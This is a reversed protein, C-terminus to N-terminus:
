KASKTDAFNLVISNDHPTIRFVTGDVPKSFFGKAAKMKYKMGEFECDVQSPNVKKFPLKASDATTLDLFWNNLKSGEVKMMMQKEDMDIVLTGLTTKLPWTIHLKGHISDTVIPDGGEMLVEKGNIISKFRLGAIKGAVSWIYGDVFPLTFFSCENSTAKQTTYVSPFNENFLHIDRFRLTGNEWLLNARYSVAISGFPKAIM